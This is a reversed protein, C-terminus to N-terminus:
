TTNSGVITPGNNGVATMRSKVTANLRQITDSVIAKSTTESCCSAVTNMVIVYIEDPDIPGSYINPGAEAEGWGVASLYEFYDDRLRPYQRRLETIADLTLPTPMQPRHSFVHALESGFLAASSRATALFTEM